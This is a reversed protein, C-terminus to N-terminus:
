VCTQQMSLMPVLRRARRCTRLHSASGMAAACTGGDPPEPVSSRTPAEALSQLAKCLAFTEVSFAPESATPLLESASGDSLLPQLGVPSMAACVLFLAAPAAGATNCVASGEAAPRRCVCPEWPSGSSDLLPESPTTVPAAMGAEPRCAASNCCCSAACGPPRAPRCVVAPAAFRFSSAAPAAPPAGRM